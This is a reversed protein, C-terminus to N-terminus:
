SQGGTTDVSPLLKGCGSRLSQSPRDERDEIIDESLPRGGHPIPRFAPLKEKSTPTLAGREVLEDLAREERNESKPTERRRTYQSETSAKLALSRQCDEALSPGPPM